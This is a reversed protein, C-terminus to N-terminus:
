YLIEVGADKFMKSFAERIDSIMFRDADSCIYVMYVINRLVSSSIYECDCAVAETVYNIVRRYQENDGCTFFGNKVCVDRFLMGITM